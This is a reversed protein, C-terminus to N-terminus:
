GRGLVLKQVQARSAQAGSDRPDGNNGNGARWDDDDDDENNNSLEATQTIWNMTNEIPSHTLHALPVCVRETRDWRARWFSAAVLTLDYGRM